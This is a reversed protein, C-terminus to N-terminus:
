TIGAASWGARCSVRLHLTAHGQLRTTSNAQSSMISTVGGYGRGGFAGEDDRHELCTTMVVVPRTGEPHPMQCAAVTYLDGDINVLLTRRDRILDIAVARTWASGTLLRSLNARDLNAPPTAPVVREYITLVVPPPPLRRCSPFGPRCPKAITTM